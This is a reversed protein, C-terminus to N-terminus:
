VSDSSDVSDDNKVKKPRGRKAPPNQVMASLAALKEQMEKMQAEQTAIRNNLAYNEKLLAQHKAEAAEAQVFRKAKLSMERAGPGLTALFNDTLAALEKATKVGAKHCIEVEGARLFGADELMTDTGYQSLRKQYLEWKRYFREKDQDQVARDIETKTDGPFRIRVYDKEAIQNFYFEVFLDTDAGHTVSLNNGKGHVTAASEM